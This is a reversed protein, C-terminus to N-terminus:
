FKFDKGFGFGQVGYGGSVQLPPAQINVLVIGSHEKSYCLASTGWLGIRMNKLGIGYIKHNLFAKDPSIWFSVFRTM